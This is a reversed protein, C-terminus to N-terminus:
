EIEGMGFNNCSLRKDLQSQISMRWEHEVQYKGAIWGAQAVIVLTFCILTSVICIGFIEINKLDM